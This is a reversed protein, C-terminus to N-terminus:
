TFRWTILHGRQPPLYRTLMKFLSYQSGAPSSWYYSARARARGGLRQGGEAPRRVPGLNGISEDHFRSIM